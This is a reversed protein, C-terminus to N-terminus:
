RTAIWFMLAVLLLLAAVEARAGNNMRERFAENRFRVADETQGQKDAVWGSQRGTFLSLFRILM